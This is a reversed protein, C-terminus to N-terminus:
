LGSWLSLDMASTTRTIQSQGQLNFRGDGDVKVISFIEDLEENTLKEGMHTLAHRVQAAPVYDSDDM